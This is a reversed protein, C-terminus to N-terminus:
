WARKITAAHPFRKALDTHSASDMAMRDLPENNIVRQNRMRLFEARLRRFPLNRLANGDFGMRTIARCYVKRASDNAGEVVGTGDTEKLAQELAQLGAMEMESMDDGNNNGMIEQVRTLDEKSLKTKLFAILSQMTATDRGNAM